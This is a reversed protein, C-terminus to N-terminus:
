IYVTWEFLQVDVTWSDSLQVHLTWGVSLKIYVTMCQWVYNYWFIDLWQVTTHVIVFLGVIQEM